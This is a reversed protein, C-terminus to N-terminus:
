QDGLARAAVGRPDACGERIMMLAVGFADIQHVQKEILDAMSQRVTNPVAALSADPERLATVARSSPTNVDIPITPM